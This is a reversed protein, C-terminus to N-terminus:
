KKRNIKRSAKQRRLIQKRNKRYSKQKEDYSIYKSHKPRSYIKEQEEFAKDFAKQKALEPDNM